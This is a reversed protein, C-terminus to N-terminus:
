NESDLLSILEKNCLNEYNKNEKFNYYAKLRDSNFINEEKPDEIVSFLYKMFSSDSIM